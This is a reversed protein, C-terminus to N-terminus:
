ESLEQRSIKAKKTNMREAVLQCVVEALQFGFFSPVKRKPYVFGANIKKPEPGAVFFRMSDPDSLHRTFTKTTLACVGWEEAFELCSFNNRARTAVNPVFNAEEFLQNSVDTFRTDLNRLVFVDNKFLSLNIVPFDPSSCPTGLSAFPHTSPVALLIEEEMIFQSIIDRSNGM